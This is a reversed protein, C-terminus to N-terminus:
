DKIIKQTFRGDESIIEILHVGKNLSELDKLVVINDGTQVKMKRQIALQGGVTYINVVIETEKVSNITLKINSSFPNPYISYNNLAMVGSLRLAVIKSYGAKGSSEVTKLRYYVVSSRVASLPDIFQYSNVANSTGHGQVSGVKTFNIGDDSREIDFHDNMTESSTTWNLLANGNSKIVGFSELKVALGSAPGILATGDDTFIEGAQSTCTARATNSVPVPVAPGTVKFSVSYTEGPLLKGGAASTAGTGLNFMIIEKGSNTTKFAIDDGGNDTKYGSTVGPCSNVVLSGAIYTVNTPLTDSIVVNFAAGSGVNSGSLTYTLQESPSLAGMPAVADQVTKDLVILPDKMKMTIAFLSPFYQDAETGFVVTASTSNAAIHTGVDLRDIDIGMQNKFDPNKSTVHSGNDSITGNWMNNKPNVANSLTDGNLLIFDGAPNSASAGLNADGEWAMTTMYAESSTMSNAPANLGTLSITQSTASGGNFVQLFGDFVRVSNFSTNSNEYVVVIAWGAYNGGGNVSGVSAAIDGVTYTGTGNAIIINTIDIYSQYATYGAAITAKDVQTASTVGKFYSGSNGKRIRVTRLNLDNAAIEGDAIRGGWYLRAFKIVNIGAPLSLDASSSNATNEIGELKLNMYLDNTGTSANHVEVAVQNAGVVFSSTPINVVLDGDGFERAGSPATSYATTGAPMNARAVEVGNVYVVIGDDYQATLQIYSFQDPNSVTISKRLYYTTRNTQTPSNTGTESFGFPTNINTWNSADSFAAQTWNASNNDPPAVTYNNLSYYKWQSAYALLSTNAINADVDTFQINSGDNGYASTRGNTYNGTGSTSFDNMKTLDVTGGSGSGSSYIASITNGFITHGGKLNDSYILGYNRIVQAHTNGTLILAVIGALLIRIKM